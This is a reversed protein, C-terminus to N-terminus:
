GISEVGETLADEAVILTNALEEQETPKGMKVTVTGNTHVTIDGLMSYDSNDYVVPEVQPEEDDTEVISWQVKDYFLGAAQAYTAALTIAKSMRGNWTNDTIKGNINALYDAGGVRVYTTM